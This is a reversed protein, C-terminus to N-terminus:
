GVWARANRFLRMWPSDGSPIKWPSPCFSLTSWRFAREPHPMLVTVRGDPTTLGTIGGETGNPNEPYTEAVAGHGDVFRVCALGKLVLADHDEESDFFARGEGHSVPVPLCSGAMGALLISPSPEIRVSCLRAEFQESRNRVFRPWCSAGPVLEKLLAFMQCGNCVGLSFTDKRAFFTAFQERLAPSFLISKAWGGGAGLVDGYSFGGVAALGVFSSLAARGSALDSMHVDYPDFGAREFAAAMELQGNSGQERLIAIKPRVLGTHARPMPDQGPDFTLRTHIGPDHMDTIRDYEERACDPDDRLSRMQFSLESWTRQLVTRPATLM